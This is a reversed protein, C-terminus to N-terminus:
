RDDCIGEDRSFEQSHPIDMLIKENLEHINTLLSSIPAEEIKSVGYIIERLSNVDLWEDNTNSAYVFGRPLKESNKYNGTKWWYYEPLVVYMGDYSITNRGEEETILIENLKEGPRIGIFDIKCGPAIAKALDRVRMSPIRPLFIEGGQMHKFGKIVLEVAQDLTIWFRTMREDTITIRGSQRQKEFLPIVSGRSGIVNGYRVCSFRSGSSRSYANGQIFVKEACLKTAGYLNVPNVAKDTSVAIAKEVGLDISADIVNQTGYINTKVAEFPNYECSPVQKLAAAHVVFDVGEMARKLRDLDRVDGIFYRMRSDGDDRFVQRMEHQKLEDRSFIRIAKPSYKELLVKTLHKGFSGTGGTILVTKGSWNIQQEREELLKTGKGNFSKPGTMGDMSKLTYMESDPCVTQRRDGKGLNLARKFEMIRCGGFYGPVCPIENIEKVEHLQEM